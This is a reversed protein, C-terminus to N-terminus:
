QVVPTAHLVTATRTSQATSAVACGTAELVWQSSILPATRALKLAGQAHCAAHCCRNLEETAASHWAEPQATLGIDLGVGQLLQGKLNSVNAGPGHGHRAAPKWEMFTLGAFGGAQPCRARRM